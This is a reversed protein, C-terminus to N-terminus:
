KTIKKYIKYQGRVVAGDVWVIDIEHTRSLFGLEKLGCLYYDSLNSGGILSIKKVSSTKLEKLETGILVGSLYQCNEDKSLKNLLSNTRVKFAANLLSEDIADNLGMKFGVSTQPDVHGINSDVSLRLISKQSLLEFFEGTMYTKIGTIQDNSVFIHKSHTGPFIFLEDDAKEGSPDICGILQTEEGRVVDDDTRMGSIVMVDHAFYPTAPLSRTKINTGDTGVPLQSYHIEIFGMTSSAMGSIILQVGSLSRGIRNEIKGIYKHVVDLYFSCREEEAKGSQEWLAFTAAIGQNNTEEAIIQYGNVDVLRLRFSSTGWDCSLFEKM